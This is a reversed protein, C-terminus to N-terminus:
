EQDHRLMVLRDAHQACLIQHQRRRSAWVFMGVTTVTTSSACRLLLRMVRSDYLQAVDLALISDAKLKCLLVRTTSANERGPCCVGKVM